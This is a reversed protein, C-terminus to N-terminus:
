LKPRTNNCIGSALGVKNKSKEKNGQWLFSRRIKDLRQVIALPIPFLSLMPLADLVANVLRLRGGTSL